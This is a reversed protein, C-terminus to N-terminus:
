RAISAALPPSLCRNQRELGQIPARTTSVFRATQGREEAVPRGPLDSVPQNPAKECGLCTEERDTVYYGQDIRRLTQAKTVSPLFTVVAMQIAGSTPIATQYKMEVSGNGEDGPRVPPSRPRPIPIAVYTPTCVILTGAFPM